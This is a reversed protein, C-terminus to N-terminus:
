KNLVQDIITQTVGSETNKPALFNATEIIKPHANKMAYSYKAAQMMELDNLFDGFVMTEDKTVNLTSQLKQLAAGKNIGKPMIDLWHDGSLSFNLKDELPKFTDPLENGWKNSNHIAIKLISDAVFDLSDAMALNKYYQYATTFFDWDKNEIYAITDTCIILNLEPQKRVEEIICEIEKFDISGLISATPKTGIYAGNDAIFIINHKLNVFEHRLSYSPRGSAIVFNIDRNQLQNYVEEFNSPLNKNDDLLTGDMDSVILKVM